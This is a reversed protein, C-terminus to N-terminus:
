RVAFQEDPLEPGLDRVQCHADRLFGTYPEADCAGQFVMYLMPKGLAAGVAHFHLRDEPLPPRATRPLLIDPLIAVPTEDGTWACAIVARKSCEADQYVDQFRHDPLHPYCRAPGTGWKAFACPLGLSRDWSDYAIVSGDEGDVLRDSLRGTSETRRPPTVRVFDKLTLLRELRFLRCPDSGDFPHCHSNRYWSRQELREGLVGFESDHLREPRDAYPDRLDETAWHVIQGAKIRDTCLQVAPITCTSDLFQKDAIFGIRDPVTLPLCYWNGDFAAGLTCRAGLARDWAEGIHL